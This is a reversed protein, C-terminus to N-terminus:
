WTGTTPVQCGGRDENTSCTRSTTGDAAKSVTFSVSPDRKSMVGIEFTGSGAVVTLRDDADKLSPEMSVLAEKSCNQYSGGNEAACAEITKAAMVAISKAEADTGKSGQGQFTPVAIAALGGVVVMVVLVEVLTFGSEGRGSFRRLPYV